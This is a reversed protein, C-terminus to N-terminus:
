SSVPASSSNTFVCVKTGDKGSTIQITMGHQALIQKTITLGLGTGGLARSRSPDGCSFPDFVKDIRDDSIGIGTDAVTIIGNEAKVRISGGERNYRIANHIINAFARTLLPRSGRIECDGTLTLDIQREALLDAFDESIEAVIDGFSFLEWETESADANLMLMDQVLAIMRLTNERLTAQTSMLEAVTQDPQMESVEITTLMAALPTKLEHAASSAFRKQGEYAMNVQTLMRNFSEALSAVEDHSEPIPVLMSLNPEAICAMHASLNSVPRLAKGTLLWVSWTGLGFVAVLGGLALALYTSRAHSITEAAELEAAPFIIQTVEDSTPIEMSVVLMNEVPSFIVDNASYLLFGALASCAVLLCLGSLLTIRMRLSIKNWM